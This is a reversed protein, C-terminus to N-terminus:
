QDSNRASSMQLLRKIVLAQIKKGSEDPRNISYGVGKLYVPEFKEESLQHYQQIAPIYAGAKSVAWRKETNMEYFDASDGTHRFYGEITFMDSSRKHIYHNADRSVPESFTTMVSLM